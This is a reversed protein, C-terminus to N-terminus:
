TRPTSAMSIGAILVPVFDSLGRLIAGGIGAIQSVFGGGPGMGLMQPLRSTVEGIGLEKTFTNLALPLREAISSLQVRMQAGFLVGVGLFLMLIIVTAATLSWREPVRVYRVLVEAFAHLIVAVLVSGFALLLVSRLQWLLLAIAIIALLILVKRVFEADRFTDWSWRQADRM